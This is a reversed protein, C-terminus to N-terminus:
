QEITGNKKFTATYDNRYQVLGKFGNIRGSEAEYDILYDEQSAFTEIHVYIAGDKKIIKYEIDYPEHEEWDPGGDNNFQDLRYGTGDENFVYLWRVVGSDNDDSWCINGSTWSTSCLEQKLASKLDGNIGCATLGTILILAVLLLAIYKKIPKIM